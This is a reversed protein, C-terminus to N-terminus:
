KSYNRIHIASSIINIAYQLKFTYHILIALIEFLQFIGTFSWQSLEWLNQIAMFRSGTIITDDSDSDDDDGEEDECM